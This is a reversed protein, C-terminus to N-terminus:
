DLGRGFVRGLNKSFRVLLIGAIAWLISGAWRDLGYTPTDKGLVVLLGIYIPGMIGVVAIATGFLRLFLTALKQYQNM